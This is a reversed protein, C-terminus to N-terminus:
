LIKLATEHQNQTGQPTKKLALYEQALAHALSSSAKPALLETPHIKAQPLEGRQVAAIDWRAPTSKRQEAMCLTSLKLGLDRCPLYATDTLQAARGLRHKTGWLWPTYGPHWPPSPAGETRRPHSPQAAEEGAQFRSTITASTLTKSVM